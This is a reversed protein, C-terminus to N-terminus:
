FFFYFSGIILRKITVAKAALTKNNDKIAKHVQAHRDVFVRVCARVRM